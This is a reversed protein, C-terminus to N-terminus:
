GRQVPFVGARLAGDSRTALAAPSPTAFRLEISLGGGAVPTAALEAGHAFAIARVISLGLGLGGAPDTREAAGRRFPEFLDDIGEAALERGGNAVRLVSRGLAEATQLRIWGDEAANHVIANDLLNAVLRELLAPDGDVVASGLSVTLELGETQGERAALLDEALEALDVRSRSDVGAQGRALALLAEIVREQQEGAALVRECTQRLSATSADPDALAVEVLARQLTVPTRLEHSANAVFRRQSSFARELRGLLGDFTSALDGLEDRRGEVGLREHLNEETIERARLNMTRLPRLARGALLWGLAISLLAVIGLAIGSKTLLASLSSSRQEQLAINASKVVKDLQKQGAKTLQRLVAQPPFGIPRPDVTGALQASGTIRGGSGAVVTQGSRTRVVASLQGGAPEGTLRLEVGRVTYQRANSNENQAVLAYTIGLLAAGAVLLCGGYLLTLRLRLTLRGPRRESGTAPV